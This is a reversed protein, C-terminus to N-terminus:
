QANPQNKNMTPTGEMMLSSLVLDHIHRIGSKYMDCTNSNHMIINKVSIPKVENVHSMYLHLM